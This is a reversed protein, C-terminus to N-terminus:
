GLRYIAPPGESTAGIRRTWFSAEKHGSSLQEIVLKLTLKLTSTGPAAGSSVRASHSGEARTSAEGGGSTTGERRSDGRRSGCSGLPAAAAPASTSVNRFISASPPAVPLRKASASPIGSWTRSSVSTKYASTDVRYAVHSPIGLPM